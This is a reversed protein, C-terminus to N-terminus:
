LKQAYINVTGDLLLGNSNNSNNKDRMSSQETRPNTSLWNGGMNSDPYSYTGDWDGYWNTNRFAPLVEFQMGDSFDIRVVQGDARINSRPYPSQLAIKLAQLLRSQGNSTYTDYREYESKPLEVLIDIDSDDIATGRGYSGVYLSNSTESSSNWFTLNAAKTVTRYRKSILSRTDQSIVEVHKKVPYSM